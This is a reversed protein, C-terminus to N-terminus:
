GDSVQSRVECCDHKLMACARKHESSKSTTHAARVRPPMVMGGVLCSRSLVRLERVVMRLERVVLGKGVRAGSQSLM